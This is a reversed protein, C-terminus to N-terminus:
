PVIIYDLAIITLDFPIVINNGSVTIPNVDGEMITIVLQGDSPTVTTPMPYFQEPIVLELAGNNLSNGAAPRYMILMQLGTANKSLVSPQAEAVGSAAYLSGTIFILATLVVIQRKM